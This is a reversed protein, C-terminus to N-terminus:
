ASAARQEEESMVEDLLLGCFSSPLPPPFDICRIPTSLMHQRHERYWRDGPIHRNQDLVAEPDYMLGTSFNCRIISKDKIINSIAQPFIESMYITGTRRDHGTVVKDYAVQWAANAKVLEFLQSSHNPAPDGDLILSYSHAPMGYSHLTSAETIYKACSATFYLIWSRDALRRISSTGGEDDAHLNELYSFRHEHQCQTDCFWGIALNRWLNVRREIHLKPWQSCFPILGLAHCEPYGVSVRDEHLVVKGIGLGTSHSISNFFHIANSAASFRWKIRKWFDGECSTVGKLTSMRAREDETPISWPEPKSLLHESRLFSARDSFKPQGDPHSYTPEGSLRDCSDAYVKFFDTDRSLLEILYDLFERFTSSAEGYSTCISVELCGLWCDRYGGENHILQLLPAFQPYRLAVKATLDSTMYHRYPLESLSRLTTLKYNRLEKIFCEFHWAHLRENESGLTWFHLVNSKLACHPLEAAVTSCTSILALDIPRNDSTRFKGSKYDFHYGDAEFVYYHYIIDRVERPFRLLSM